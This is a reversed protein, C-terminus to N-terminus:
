DRLPTLSAKISKYFLATTGLFGSDSGLVLWLQGTEDARVELMLPMEREILQYTDVAGDHAIDGLVLLDAGGQSQNGKDLKLTEFDEKTEISPEDSVAGAKLYVSEGPAGGIGSLGQSAPSYVELEVMLGYFGNPRLGELRTYLYMFLDSSLNKGSLKLGQADMGPVQDLGSSLEFSERPTSPSDRPLDAFGTQWDQVDKSLDFEFTQAQLPDTQDDDKTCAALFVFCLLGIFSLLRM